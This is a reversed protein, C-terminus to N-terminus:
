GVGLCELIKTTLDEHTFPKTVYHKAGTKIARIVNERESETTVMMVPINQYRPDSKVKELVEIGTMEPMNWDLIMLVVESLNQDLLEMAERGNKAELFDYGLVDVSDRIIRRMIGSDDACLVKM